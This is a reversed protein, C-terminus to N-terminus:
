RFCVFFLSGRLAMLRPSDAADAPGCGPLGAGAGKLPLLSQFLRGGPARADRGCASGNRIAGNGQSAAGPWGAPPIAMPESWASDQRRQRDLRTSSILSARGTNHPRSARAGPHAKLGYRRRVLPTGDTNTHMRPEDEFINPLKERSHDASCPPPVALWEGSKM